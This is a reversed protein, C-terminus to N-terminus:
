YLIHSIIQSTDLNWKSYVSPFRSYDLYFDSYYMAKLNFRIWDQRIHNTEKLTSCGCYTFATTYM